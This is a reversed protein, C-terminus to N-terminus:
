WWCVSRIRCSDLIFPMFDERYCINIWFKPLHPSATKAVVWWSCFCHGLDLWAETLKSDFVKSVYKQSLTKPSWMFVDHLYLEGWEPNPWYQSLTIKWISNYRYHAMNLKWESPMSTKYPSGCKPMMLEPLAAHCCALMHTLTLCVNIM